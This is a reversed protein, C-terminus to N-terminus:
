GRWQTVATIIDRYWGGLGSVSHIIFKQYEVDVYTASFKTKM